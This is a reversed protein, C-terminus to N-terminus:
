QSTLHWGDCLPCHYVRREHRQPQPARWCDNLAAQASDESPYRLKLCLFQGGPMKYGVNRGNHTVMSAGAEQQLQQLARRKWGPSRASKLVRGRRRAFEQANM